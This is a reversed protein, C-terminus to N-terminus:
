PAARTVDRVLKFAGAIWTFPGTGPGSFQVDYRGDIVFGCKSAPAHILLVPGTTGDPLPYVTQVSLEGTVSSLSIAPSVDSGDARVMMEITPYADKIAQAETGSLPVPPSTPRTLPIARLFEDGRTGNLDVRYPM